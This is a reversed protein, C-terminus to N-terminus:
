INKLLNISKTNEKKNIINNIGSNKIIPIKIFNFEFPEIKYM